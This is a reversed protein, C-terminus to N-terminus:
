AARALARTRLYNEAARDLAARRMRYLTTRSVELQAGLRDLAAVSAGVSLVLAQEVPSLEAFWSPREAEALRDFDASAGADVVIQELTLEEHAVLEARARMLRDVCARLRHGVWSWALTSFRVGRTHDYRMIADALGLHAEQVLEDLPLATRQQWRHALMTALRVNALWLRERARQGEAVLVELEGVSAVVDVVGALAAEALVGVEIRRALDVEESASLLASSSEM